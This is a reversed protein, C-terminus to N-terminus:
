GEALARLLDATAKGSNGRLTEPFIGEIFNKVAKDNGNRAAERALAWLEHISGAHYGLGGQYIFETFTGSCSALVPKKVLWDPFVVPLNLAYAEYIVSSCDSLIVDAWSYLDTVVSDGGGTHPHPSIMLHIDEPVSDLYKLLEPYSSLSYGKDRYLNTHTPAYLVRIRGDLSQTKQFSSFIPDLKPFGGILIKEKEMGQTILKDKWAPGSVFVRMFERVSHADRWGKDGMGHSMFVRDAYEEDIFFNVNIQGPLFGKRRKAEPLYKIIPNIIGDLVNYYTQWTDRTDMFNIIKAM